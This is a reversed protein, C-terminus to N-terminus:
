LGNCVHEAQHDQHGGQGGGRARGAGHQAGLVPGERRGGEEEGGDLDGPVGGQRLATLSTITTRPLKIKWKQDSFQVCYVNESTSHPYGSSIQSETEMIGNSTSGQCDLYELM